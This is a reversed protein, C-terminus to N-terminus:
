AGGRSEGALGGAILHAARLPEPTNGRLTTLDLIKGVEDDTLGASQYFVVRGDKQWKKVRGTRKVIAVRKRWDKKFVKKIAGLFERMDPEYRQVAIVPLGTKRHISHIDVLNFGGFTIGDTMVVSLQGFHRSKRIAKIIKETSDLGDKEVWVSLMGDMYDAGRYIPGVLLVEKTAHTHRTDDWGIIRIEKKVPRGFRRVM